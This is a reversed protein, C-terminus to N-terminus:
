YCNSLMWAYQMKAIALTKETWEDESVFTKQPVYQPGFYVLSSATRMSTTMNHM